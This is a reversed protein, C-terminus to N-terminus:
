VRISTYIDLQQLLISGIKWRLGAKSATSSCTNSHVRYSEFRCGESEFDTVRDTSSRTRLRILDYFERHQLVTDM